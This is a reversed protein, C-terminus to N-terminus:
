GQKQCFLILVVQYTHIKMTKKMVKREESRRVMFHLKQINSMLELFMSTCVM